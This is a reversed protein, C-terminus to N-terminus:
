SNAMGRIIESWTTNPYYPWQERSVIPARRNREQKWQDHWIHSRTVIVAPEDFQDATIDIIIDDIEVWAHTYGDDRAGCVYLADLRHFERFYRAILESTVGCAGNPFEKFSLDSTTKGNRELIVRIRTVIEALQEITIM